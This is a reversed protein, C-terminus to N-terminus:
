PHTNIINMGRQLGLLPKQGPPEPQPNFMYILGARGSRAEVGVGMAAAFDDLPMYPRGGVIIIGRSVLHGGVEFSSTQANPTGPEGAAPQAAAANLEKLHDASAEAIKNAQKLRATWYRKDEEELEAISKMISMLQADRNIGSPQHAASLRAGQVVREADGEPAPREEIVIGMVHEPNIRLVGREGPQAAYANRDSDFRVRAGLARAVDDLPIYAITVISQSFVGAPVPRMLVEDEEQATASAPALFFVPLAVTALLSIRLTMFCM